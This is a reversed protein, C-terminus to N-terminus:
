DPFVLKKNLNARMNWYRSKNLTAYQQSKVAHMLKERELSISTEGRNIKTKEEKEGSETDRITNFSKIMKEDTGERYYLTDETRTRWM